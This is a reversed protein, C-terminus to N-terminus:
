YAVDPHNPLAMEPPSFGKVCSVAELGFLAAFYHQWARVHLRFDQVPTSPAVAHGWATGLWEVAGRCGADCTIRRLYTLVYDLEMQRLGYLLCGSYDLMVRPQKGEEVLQPIFEGMRQYCWRFVPANHNDGIQPNDMMYQLNSIVPATRLDGTGALILPQHMHLAIAFASKIRGFDIGSKRLYVTGKDATAATVQEEAGCINPLGDICDPLTNM